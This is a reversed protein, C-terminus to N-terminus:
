LKTYKTLESTQVMIIRWTRPQSVTYAQLHVNVKRFFISDGDENQIRFISAANKESVYTGDEVDKSRWM